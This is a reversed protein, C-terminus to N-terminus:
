VAGIRKKLESKMPTALGPRQAPPTVRVALTGGVGYAHTSTRPKGWRPQRCAKRLIVPSGPDGPSDHLAWGSRTPRIPCDRGCPGCRPTGRAPPFTTLATARTTALRSSSTRAAWRHRKPGLRSGGATGGGRSRSSQLRRVNGGTCAPPTSGSRRAETRSSCPSRCGCAVDSVATPRTTRNSAPARGTTPSSRRSASGHRARTSRESM